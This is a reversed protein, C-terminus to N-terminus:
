DRENQRNRANLALGAYLTYRTISLADTAPIHDLGVREARIARGTEDSALVETLKRLLTELRSFYVKIPRAEASVIRNPGNFGWRPLLVRGNTWRHRRAM